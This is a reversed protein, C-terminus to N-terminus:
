AKADLALNLELVNVGPEGLVGLSRSDTNADILANVHDLSVNRARAVRPAQLRANEISIDPDVGSGSSTVADVPVPTTADLGNAKRYDDVRQQVDQSLTPNTPGLNSGGSNVVTLDSPDAPKGNADLSGSAAIGAASPRAAFYGDGSFQQGLLKSGVTQGSANTVLSGNAKDHFLLQDLGLSVLPYGLGLIITLVIVM